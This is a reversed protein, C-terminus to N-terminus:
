GCIGYGMLFVSMGCTQSAPCQPANLDCFEFAKSGGDQV